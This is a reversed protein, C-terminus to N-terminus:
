IFMEELLINYKDFYSLKQKIDFKKINKIVKKLIPINRKLLKLKSEIVWAKGSTTVMKKDQLIQSQTKLNNNYCYYLIEINDLLILLQPTPYYSQYKLLDIINLYAVINNSILADIMKFVLDVNVNQILLEVDEITLIGKDKVYLILKEIDPLIFTTDGNCYDFLQRICEGDIEIAEDIFKQRIWKHFGRERLKNFSLIKCDLSQLIKLLEKVRKTAFRENFIENSVFIYTNSGIPNQLYNSIEKFSKDNKLLKEFNLLVVTKNEVGFPLIKFESLINEVTEEACNLKTLAPTGFLDLETNKDIIEKLQIKLDANENGMLLYFNTKKKTM